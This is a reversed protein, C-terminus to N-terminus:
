AEGGGKSWQIREGKIKITRDCNPCRNETIRYEIMKGGCGGLNIRKILNEGCEPCITSVWDSGVFNSFYVYDLIKRAEDLLLNIEAIAPPNAEQMKYEPLLRFVHWPIERDITAIFEAMKVIDKDNVTQIIPTTIEVHTKDVILRINRLVPGLLPVAAYRHYFEDTMGKLSINVFDFKEGMQEAVQETMYGNTLCGVPMGKYGAEEALSLMFPWSVVPENVAFVINHCGSQQAKKILDKPTLEYKYLEEPTSRAVYANSCYKCDFNCGMTGIIMSRSGPYAHYFPVSEIHSVFMSTLSFPFREKITNNEMVYMGCRGFIKETIECHLECYNCQL